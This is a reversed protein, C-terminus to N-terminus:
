PNAENQVKRALVRSSGNGLSVWPTASRRGRSLRRLDDRWADHLVYWLVTAFRLQQLRIRFGIRLDLREEGPHGAEFYGPVVDAQPTQLAVRIIAILATASSADSRAHRM